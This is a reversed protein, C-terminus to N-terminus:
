DQEIFDDLWDGEDADDSDDDEDMYREFLRRYETLVGDDEADPEDDADEVDLEDHTHGPHGQLVSEEDEAEFIFMDFDPNAFGLGDLAEQAALSLAEDEGEVLRELLQRARKGGIEGMAWVAM